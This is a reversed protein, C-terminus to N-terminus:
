PRGKSPARARQISWGHISGIPQICSTVTLVNGDKTQKASVDNASSRHGSGVAVDGPLALDLAVGRDYHSQVRERASTGGDVFPRTRSTTSGSLSESKKDFTEAAMQPAPMKVMRAAAGPWPAPDCPIYKFGATCPM